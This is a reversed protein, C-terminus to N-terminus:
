AGHDEQLMITPAGPLAISQRKVGALVLLVDLPARGLRVVCPSPPSALDDEAPLPPAVVTAHLALAQSRIFNPTSSALGPLARALDAILLAAAEGKLRHLRREGAERDRPRSASGAPRLGPRDRLLSRLLGVATPCESALKGAEFRCAAQIAPDTLSAMSHNPHLAHAAVACVLTRCFADRRAPSWEPRASALMADIRAPWGLRHLRALLLFFGGHPTDFGQSAAEAQPGPAVARLTDVVSEFELDGAGDLWASAVGTSALLTTWAHREATQPLPGLRGDAALRLLHVMARLAVASTAGMSGARARECSALAAIWRQPSDGAGYLQRAHSWLRALPAEAATDFTSLWALLRSADADALTGLVLTLTLESLRGLAATGDAGENILLTRLAMSAGLPRLGEFEDFWWCQNLRGQIIALAAAAVYDAREPFRLVTAEALGTQLALALRRALHAAIADDDWHTNASCHVALRDIFVLAGAGDVAAAAGGRSSDRESPGGSDKMAAPAGRSVADDLRTRALARALRDQALGELRRGVLELRQPDGCLRLGLSLRRIDVQLSGADAAHAM